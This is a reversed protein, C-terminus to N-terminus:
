WVPYFILSFGISGLIGLSITRLSMYVPCIFQGIGSFFLFYVALSSSILPIQCNLTAFVTIIIGLFTLQRKQYHSNDGVFELAKEISFEPRNM